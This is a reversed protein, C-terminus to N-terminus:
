TNQLGNADGQLSTGGFQSSVKDISANDHGATPGQQATDVTQHGLFGAQWDVDRVIRQACDGFAGSPPQLLKLKKLANSGIGLQLREGTHALRGASGPGEPRNAPSSM